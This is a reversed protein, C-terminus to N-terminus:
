TLLVSEVLGVAIANIGGLLMAPSLVAMFARENQLTDGDEKKPNNPIRPVKQAEWSPCVLLRPLVELPQVARCLLTVPPIKLAIADPLGGGLQQAQVFDLGLVFANPFAQFLRRLFRLLIYRRICVKSGVARLLLDDLVAATEPATPSLNFKGRPFYVSLDESGGRQLLGCTIPERRHDEPDRNFALNAFRRKKQPATM